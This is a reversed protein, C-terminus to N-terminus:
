YKKNIKKKINELLYKEKSNEFINVDIDNIIKVLLNREEKNLYLNMAEM